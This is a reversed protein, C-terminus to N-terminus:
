YFISEKHMYEDPQREEMRHAAPIPSYNRSTEVKKSSSFNQFVQGDLVRGSIKCFGSSLGLKLRNWRIKQTFYFLISYFQASSGSKQVFKASEVVQRSEVRRLEIQPSAQWDRGHSTPLIAKSTTKRVLSGISTVLLLLERFTLNCKFRSKEKKGNTFKFNTESCVAGPM